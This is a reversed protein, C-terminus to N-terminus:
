RSGLMLEVARNVGNVPDVGRGFSAAAEVMRPSLAVDVREAIAAARAEGPLIMPASVGVAELRMAWYLQDGYQPLAVSPKKAVLTEAITGAGGHHIVADVRSFLWRYATEGIIFVDESRPGSATSPDQIIARAGAARIGSIIEDFDLSPDGGAASGLTLAVIPRPGELFRALEQPAAYPVAAELWFDTMFTNLGLQTREPLLGPSSGIIRPAPLDRLVEAIGGVPQTTIAFVLRPDDRYAAALPALLDNFVLLDKDETLLSLQELVRPLQPVLFTQVMRDGRRGPDLDKMISAYAELEVERSPYVGLECFRAGSALVDREFRAHAGVTVSVGRQIM